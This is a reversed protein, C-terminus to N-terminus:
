LYNYKILCMWRNYLLRRTDLSDCWDIVLARLWWAHLAELIGIGLSWHLISGLGLTWLISCPASGKIREQLVHARSWCEGCNHPHSQLTYAERYINNTVWLPERFVWYAKKRFQMYIGMTSLWIFLMYYCFALRWHRRMVSYDMM